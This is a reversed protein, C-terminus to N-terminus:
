IGKSIKRKFSDGYISELVQIEEVQEETLQFMRSDLPPEQSNYNKINIMVM